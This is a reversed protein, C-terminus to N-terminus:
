RKNKPPASARRSSEAPPPVTPQKAAPAGDEGYWAKRPDMELAECIAFFDGASLQPQTGAEIRSMASKGIGARRALETVTLGREERRLGFRKGVLRVPDKYRTVREKPVDVSSDSRSWARGDKRTSM